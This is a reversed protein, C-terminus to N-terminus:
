IKLAECNWFNRLLKKNIPKLNRYVTLAIYKYGFPAHNLGWLHFEDYTEHSFCLRKMCGSMSSVTLSGNMARRKLKMNWETVDSEKQSTLVKGQLCEM